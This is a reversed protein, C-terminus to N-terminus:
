STKPTQYYPSTGEAYNQRLNAKMTPLSIFSSEDSGPPQGINIFFSFFFGKTTPYPFLRQVSLLRAAITM